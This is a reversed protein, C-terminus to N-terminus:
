YHEKCIDKKHSSELPNNTLYDKLLNCGDGLLNDPKRYAKIKELDWLIVKKDASASVIERGDPSFGVSRVWGKHGALPQNILKMSPYEWVKVLNDASGSVLLYPSYSHNSFSVDWVWDNHSTQHETDPDIFNGIFTGDAVRWLKVMNDSGATALYKADPSFGLNNVWDLHGNKGALIKHQQTYQYQEDFYWLHATRDSSSSALVRGNNSFSIAAVSHKHGTLVEPLPKFPCPQNQMNKIQSLDYEWLLINQSQTTALINIQPNFAISKVKGGKEDIYCKVDPVNKDDSVDYFKVMNNYTAAAIYLSGKPTNPVFDVDRVNIQQGKDNQLYISDKLRYTQSDWIRISGDTGSSAVIPQTDSPSFDVDKLGSTHGELVKVSGGADMDYLRIKNDGSATALWRGDSSFNLGTARFSSNKFSRLLTGDASWLKVSGNASASAITDRKSNFRVDFVWNDHAIISYDPKLVQAPLNSKIKWFALTNDSSGSILTKDDLSFDIAQVRDHHTKFESIIQFTQTDWLRVIRDSGGTAFFKGNNSYKGVLTAEPLKQKHLVKGKKDWICVYGANSVTLINQNHQNVDVDNVASDHSLIHLPKSNDDLSWLRVKKDASASAFFSEDNAVALAYVSDQHQYTTLRKGQRTWLKVTEDSSGSLLRNTLPTFIVTQVQKDHWQLRNREQTQNIAKELRDKIKTELKDIDTSENHQRHNKISEQQLSNLANVGYYLADLEQGNALYSESLSSMAEISSIMADHREKKAIQTQEEAKLRQQNAYVALLIALMFGIVISIITLRQNKSELESSTAIYRSQLETPKPANELPQTLWYRANRLDQGRLLYSNDFNHNEWDLARTLFRTHMKVLDLDTDLTNLLGTFSKNFDDEDRFFIWDLKALKRPIKGSVEKHLIPILKKNNKIAHELERECVESILSEPTIIFIFANATEIGAEIENWWDSGHPIGEWDIWVKRNVQKFAEALKQVFSKNKRSYSIFAENM